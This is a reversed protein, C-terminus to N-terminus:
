PHGAQKQKMYAEYVLQASLIDVAASGVSKFVTIEEPGRRGEREGGILGVLDGVIGERTIVGREMAGILEGAEEVAAWSDVFVRGRLIAEDDCERMAATFSGVLDLHTGAKLSAGRVLAAESNTACSVIDGLGVAEDLCDVGAFEEVEPHDEALEAALAQAKAQTRNWILVTVLTPRAALHAKILHPALSGAGVM